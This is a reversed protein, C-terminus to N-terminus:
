LCIVSINSVNASAVGSGNKLSCHPAIPQNTPISVLYSDGAPITVPFQFNVPMNCGPGVQLNTNMGSNSSTDVLSIAVCNGSQGFSAAGGVTYSTTAGAIGSGYEAECIGSGSAFPGQPRSVAFSMSNGTLQGTLSFLLTNVCDNGGGATANVLGSSSVTGSFVPLGGAGGTTTTTPNITINGNNVTATYTGSSLNNAASAGTSGTGCNPCHLTWTGSLTIPTGSSGGGSGYSPPALMQRSLVLTGTVAVTAGTSSCTGTMSSFNLTCTNGSGGSSTITGSTGSWVGSLYSSGNTIGALVGNPAAIFIGQGATTSGVSSTPTYNAFWLGANNSTVSGSTALIETITATGAPSGNSTITVASSTTAGGSLTVDGSGGNGQLHITLNGGSAIWYGGFVNNKSANIGAVIGNPQLLAYINCTGTTCNTVNWVSNVYAQGASTQSSSTAQYFGYANAIANAPSVVLSSNNGGVLSTLNSAITQILTSGSGPLQQAFTTMLTNAMMGSPMLLNASGSANASGASINSLTQLFAAMAAAKPASLNSSNPAEGTITFPTIVGGPPIAVGGMNGAASSLSVGLVTFDVSDGSKYTFSGDSQTTGTLGSSTKYFAGSVPSDVFYGTLNSSVSGSGSSSGSGGGGGGCASLLLMISLLILDCGLKGVAKAEM